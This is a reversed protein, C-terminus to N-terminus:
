SSHVDKPVGVERGLNSVGQCGVEVEFQCM